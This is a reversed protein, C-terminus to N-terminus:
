FYYPPSGTMCWQILELYNTSSHMDLRCTVAARKNPSSAQPHCLLGLAYKFLWWVSEFPTLVSPCRTEILTRLSIMEPETVKLPGRRQVVVRAPKQPWTVRSHSSSGVSFWSFFCSLLSGMLTNSSTHWRKKQKPVLSVDYVGTSYRIRQLSSCSSRMQAHRTERLDPSVSCSPYWDRIHKQPPRCRFDLELLLSRLSSFTNACWGYLPYWTSKCCSGYNNALQSKRECPPSQVPTEATKAMCASNQKPPTVM